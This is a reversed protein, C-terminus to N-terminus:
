FIQDNKEIVSLKQALLYSKLDELQSTFSDEM